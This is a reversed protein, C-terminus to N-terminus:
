PGSLSFSSSSRFFVNGSRCSTASPALGIRASRTGLGLNQSSCGSHYDNGEKRKAAESEEDDIPFIIESEAVDVSWKTSLCLKCPSGEKTERL